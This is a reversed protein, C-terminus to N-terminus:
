CSAVEMLLVWVTDGNRHHHLEHRIILQLHKRSGVVDTPLVINASGGVLTSFPIKIEGSVLIRIKGINRILISDRLIGKLGLLNKILRTFVIILGLILVILSYTKIDFSSTGEFNLAEDKRTVESARQAHVKRSIAKSSISDALPERIHIKVDPITEQPLAAFLIPSVFAAVVLAQAM